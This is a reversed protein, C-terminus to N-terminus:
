RNAVPATAKELWIVTEADVLPSILEFVRAHYDNLWEVQDPSMLDLDILDTNIPVLTLTEFGLMAREGGEVPCVAVLNEIRIGYHDVKYYGPENSLVM